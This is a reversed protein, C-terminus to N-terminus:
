WSVNQSILSTKSTISLLKVFQNKSFSKSLFKFTLFTFSLKFLFCLFTSVLNFRSRFINFDLYNPDWFLWHNMDQELHSTMREALQQQFMWHAWHWVLETYKQWLKFLNLKWTHISLFFNYPPFFSIFLKLANCSKTKYCLSLLSPHFGASGVLDPVKHFSSTDETGWPKWIYFPSLLSWEPNNLYNFTMICLFCKSCHHCLTLAIVANCAIMTRPHNGTISRREDIATNWCMWSSPLIFVYM